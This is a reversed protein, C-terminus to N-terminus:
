RRRPAKTLIDTLPPHKNIFPSHKNVLPVCYKVYVIGHKEAEVEDVDEGQTNRLREIDQNRKGVRFTSDDFIMDASRVSLQKKKDEVVRAGALFAEKDKFVSVLSQIIPRLQYKLHKPLGISRVMDNLDDAPSMGDIAFDRRFTSGKPKTPEKIQEAILCPRGKTRDVTVCFNYQRMTAVSEIFVPIDMERLIELAQSSAIQLNRWSSLKCPGSPIRPRRCRTHLNRKQTKSFRRQANILITLGSLFWPM